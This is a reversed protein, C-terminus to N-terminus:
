WEPSGIPDAGLAICHKVLRLLGTSVAKHIVGISGQYPEDIPAGYKVLLDLVM